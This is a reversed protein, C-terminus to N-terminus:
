QGEIIKYAVGLVEHAIRAVSNVTSDDCGNTLLVVGTGDTPDCYAACIMGYAKGQHGYLTRGSVLRNQIINLNLGTKSECTVSGINNQATRMMAVTGPELVRVGDVSGDGAIVLLAKALDYASISLAGASYIYHTQYDDTKDAHTLAMSDMIVSYSAISYIKAIYVDKPLSPTFYSATIGLPRYVARAMWEDSTMGTFLEIFSGLLGGGFNSYDYKAGPTNTSFDTSSSSSTFVSSLKVVTGNIARNYHGYDVLSSTHTMIQRITIPTDRHYPNRVPFDCYRGIDEDLDFLGMEWLRLLGIATVMKSISGVRFMTNPNVLIKDQRSAYGFCYIDAIKWDKILVVQAGVAGYADLAGKLRRANQEHERASGCFCQFTADVGAYGMPAFVSVCYILVLASALMRMSKRKM